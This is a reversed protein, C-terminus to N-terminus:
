KLLVMKRMQSLDGVQVRVLYVGSPLDRADFLHRHEGANLRGLDAQYVAQGLLNFVSLSVPSTHSLSFSLTTTANFPNPYALLSFSAPLSISSERAGNWGDTVFVAWGTDPDCGVNEWFDEAEIRYSYYDEEPVTFTAQYHQDEGRTMPIRTSDNGWRLVLRVESLTDQDVAEAAFSLVQDVRVTDPPISLSQVQPPLVDATLMGTATLYDWGIDGWDSWYLRLEDGVFQGGSYFMSPFDEGQPSPPYWHKGHNASFSLYIGWQTSDPNWYDEWLVGWLKGRCFIEPAAYDGNLPRGTTLFYPPEWTQGGNTTRCIYLNREYWGYGELAAVIATESATDGAISYQLSTRTLPQDPLLSFPTWVQGSRDSIAAVLSRESSTSGTDGAVVIFHDHTAALSAPRPCVLDDNGVVINEQWTVGNDSSIAARKRYYQGPPFNVDIRIVQPGVTLMSAIRFGDIAPTGAQWSVGGDLSQFSWLVDDSPQSGEGYGYAYIATASGSLNCYFNHYYTTDFLQWPSFTLCNDHSYITGPRFRNYHQDPQLSTFVITDGLLVAPRYDSANGIGLWRAQGWEIPAQAQGWVVRALALLAIWYYTKM